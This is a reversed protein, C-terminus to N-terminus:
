ENERESFLIKALHSKKQIWKERFLSLFIVDEYKGNKLVHHKFHGEKEFGFRHYLHLAAKNFSFVESCLKFFSLKEFFYELALFLSASGLGKPVETDGIYIGLYGRKSQFDMRSFYVSGRPYGLYEFIFYKTHSDKQMRKFWTLHEEYSIHHDTFMNKHVHESNRWKLVQELDSERLPRIIVDDRRFM